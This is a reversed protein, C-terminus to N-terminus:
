CIIEVFLINYDFILKKYYGEFIWFHPDQEYSCDIYKITKYHNINMFCLDSIQNFFHPAIMLYKLYGRRELIEHLFKCTQSLYITSNNDPLFETILILLEEPLIQFINRDRYNLM